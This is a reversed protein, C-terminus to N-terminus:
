PTFAADGAPDTPHIWQAYAKPYAAAFQQRVVRLAPDDLGLLIASDLLKQLVRPEPSFHLLQRALTHQRLANDDTLTFTTLEAFQVEQAFLRSPRAKALTNNQYAALRQERLLYLQSVRTYDWATYALGGGLLTAVVIAFATRAVSPAWRTPLSKQPVRRWLLGVCLGTAMQFPGYWLPYEVMSHLAIIVLVAWAAQRHVDPERWPRRHWVWWLVAACLATSLPIGLEVALHLPLNHANDLIACFRPGSYPYIFHAFKLEGWGWGFWPKQAILELVNAWLLKRSECGASERLRNLLGSQPLGTLWELVVPLLFVGLAYLLLAASALVRSRRQCPLWCMVAVMLWQLAGTRSASAANALALLGLAAGVLGMSLGLRARGVPVFRRALYLLAVLGVSTLSAFQNRQRLNGFAQGVTTVNVWPALSDALGFYQALGMASSLLAAALWAVFVATPQCPNRASAGRQLLGYGVLLTLACFGSVLLPVTNARPGTSFPNIWPLVVTVGVLVAWVVYRGHQHMTLPRQTDNTMSATNDHKQGIFVAPVSVLGGLRWGNCQVPEACHTTRVTAPM